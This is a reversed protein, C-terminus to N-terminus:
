GILKLAFYPALNFVIVLMKFRGLYDFYLRSLDTADIDFMRSHIKTITSKLLLIMITSFLLLGINLVTIWGMLETLTELTM